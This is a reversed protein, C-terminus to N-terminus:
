KAGQTLNELVFESKGSESEFASNLNTDFVFIKLVVFIVFLKILIVKWLTKGLKMSAFGQKYFDFVRWFGSALGKIFM